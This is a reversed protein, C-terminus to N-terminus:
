DETRRQERSKRRKNAETKAATSVERSPWRGWKSMFMRAVQGPKIPLKGEGVRKENRRFWSLWLAVLHETEARPDPPLIKLRGDSVVEFASAPVDTEVPPTEPESLPGGCCGCSITTPPWTALCSPCRKAQYPAAEGPRKSAKGSGNRIGGFRFGHHERLFGLRSWNGTHSIVRAWDKDARTIRGEEQRYLCVSETPRCDVMVRIPHYPPPYSKGLWFTPDTKVKEYDSPPDWGTTLLDACCVVDLAEPHTSSLGGVSLRALARDRERTPTNGDLHLARVGFARFREALHASHARTTAFLVSPEGEALAIWTEVVHGVLKPRDFREAAAEQVFDGHRKPIGGLDPDDVGLVVPETLWGADFLEAPTTPEYIYDSVDGLDRGDLRYPSGSWFVARVTAYTRRLSDLVERWTRAVALHGEDVSVVAVSRAPEVVRHALTGISATVLLPSGDAPPRPSADGAMLPQAPLGFERFARHQNWTLERRHSLQWFDAQGRILRERALMAMMRTKGSGVPSTVLPAVYGRAWLAPVVRAVDEQYPRGRIEPFTETM